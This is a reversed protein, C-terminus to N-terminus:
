AKANLLACSKAKEELRKRGARAIVLHDLTADEPIDGTWFSAVLSREFELEERLRAIADELFEEYPVDIM